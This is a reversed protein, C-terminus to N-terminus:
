ERRDLTRLGEDLMAEARDRWDPAKTLVDRNAGSLCFIAKYFPLRAAVQSHGGSALYTKLFGEAAGDLVRISGLRHLAQRALSVMFKAVDRTPDAVVYLDWDYVVTRGEALIVQYPTYDGHGPCMPIRGLSSAAAKLRGFLQASKAALAGGEESVLRSKRETRRLIGEVDLVQGPPPALAHFRALWQACREAAAARQREDGRRFILKAPIGEVKEQLLLRLSPVYAIPQPISFDAEPGFGARTLTEMVQYVNPRDKAYVKGILDTRLAIEFTCRKASRWELVQIRVERLARWWESSSVLKLQKGLEKPNLVTGLTPIDPDDVPPSNAIGQDAFRRLSASM